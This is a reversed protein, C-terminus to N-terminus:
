IFTFYCRHTSVLEPNTFFYPFQELLDVSMDELMKRRHKSTLKIKEKIDEMNIETVKTFKLLGVDKEADIDTYPKCIRTDNRDKEGVAEKLTKKVCDKQRLNKM